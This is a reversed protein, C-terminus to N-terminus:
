WCQRYSISLTFLLMFAVMVGVVYFVVFTRLSWGGRIQLNDTKSTLGNRFSISGVTNPPRM